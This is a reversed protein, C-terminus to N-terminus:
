AETAPASDVIRKVKMHSLGTAEAIERLSSGGASAARILEDRANMAVVTRTAAKRLVDATSSSTM